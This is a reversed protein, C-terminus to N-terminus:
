KKGGKKKAKKGVLQGTISPKTSLFLAPNLCRLMLESKGKRKGEGMLLNGRGKRGKKTPLPTHSSTLQIRISPSLAMPRTRGQRGRKRRRKEREKKKEQEENGSGHLFSFFSVDHGLRHNEGKEPAAM